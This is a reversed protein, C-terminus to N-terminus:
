NMLFLPILIIVSSLHKSQFSFFINTTTWSIRRVANVRKEALKPKIASHVANTKRIKQWIFTRIIIIWYDWIKIQSYYINKQFNFHNIHYRFHSIWILLVFFKILNPCTITDATFQVYTVKKFHEETLKSFFKQM